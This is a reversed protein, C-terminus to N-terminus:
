IPTSQCETPLLGRGLTVTFIAPPPSLSWGRARRWDAQSDLPAGLAVNQTEQTSHQAQSKRATAARSHERSGTGVSRSMAGNKALNFKPAIMM